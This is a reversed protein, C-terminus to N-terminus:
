DQGGSSRKNAKPAAAVPEVRLANIARLAAECDLLYQLRDAAIRVTRRARSRTRLWIYGARALVVSPYVLTYLTAWLALIHLILDPM